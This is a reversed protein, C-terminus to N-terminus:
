IEFLYNLKGFIKFRNQSHLQDTNLSLHYKVQFAVQLTLFQQASCLAIVTKVGDFPCCQYALLFHGFILLYM